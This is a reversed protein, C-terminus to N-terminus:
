EIEEIDVIVQDMHDTIFHDKFGEIYKLSDKVLVGADVMGDLIYKKAFAINDPDKRENKIYWYFDISVRKKAQKLGQKKCLWFVAETERKKISAAMFKNTREARIYTNLDTPHYDLILSQKM